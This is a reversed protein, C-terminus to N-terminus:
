PVTSRCRIRWKSIIAMSASWGLMSWNIHFLRSSRKRRSVWCKYKEERKENNEYGYSIMVTMTTYENLWGADCSESVTWDTLQTKTAVVASLINDYCGYLSNKYRSTALCPAACRQLVRDYWHCLLSNTRYKHFQKQPSPSSTSLRDRDRTATCIIFYTWRFRMYRFWTLTEPPWKQQWQRNLTM